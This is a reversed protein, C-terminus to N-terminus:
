SSEGRMNKYISYKVIYKGGETFNELKILRSFFWNLEKGNVRIRPIIECKLPGSCPMDRNKAVLFGCQKEFEAGTRLNSNIFSNLKIGFSSGYDEYEDTIMSPQSIIGDDEPEVCIYVEVRKNKLLKIALKNLYSNAKYIKIIAKIEYQVDDNGLNNFYIISTLHDDDMLNSLKISIQIPTTIFKVISINLNIAFYYLLSTIVLFIGEKLKDKLFGEPIFDINVYGLILTKYHNLIFCLFLGILSKIFDSTFLKRERKNEM